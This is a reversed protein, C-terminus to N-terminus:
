ESTGSLAQMVMPSSVLHVVRAREIPLPWSRRAEGRRQEIRWREELIDVGRVVWRGVWSHLRCCDARCRLQM